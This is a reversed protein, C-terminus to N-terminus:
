KYEIYSQQIFLIEYEDVQIISNPLFTGSNIVETLESNLMATRFKFLGDSIELNCEEGYRHTNILQLIPKSVAVEHQMDAVCATHLVSDTLDSLSLLNKIESDTVGQHLPSGDAIPIPNGIKSQVDSGKNIVTVSMIKISKKLELQEYNNLRIISFESILGTAVLNNFYRSRTYFRNFTFEGDSLEVSYNFINEEANTVKVLTLVQLIPHKVIDGSRIEKLVGTSLKAINDSSNLCKQEYTSVLIANESRINMKKIFINLWGQMNKELTPEGIIKCVELGNAIITLNKIRLTYGRGEIKKHNKFDDIKVVTFVSLKGSSHLQNLKIDFSCVMVDKGDSLYVGYNSDVEIEDEEM